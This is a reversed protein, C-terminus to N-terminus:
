ETTWARSSRRPRPLLSGNATIKRRELTRRNPDEWPKEYIVTYQNGLHHKVQRTLLLGERHFSMWPFEHWDDPSYRGVGHKEFRLAWDALSRHLSAPIATELWWGAYDAVNGGVGWSVNGSRNIWAYPACGIDPMITLVERRVGYFGEGIPMRPRRGGPRFRWPRRASVTKHM